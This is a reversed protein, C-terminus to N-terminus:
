RKREMLLDVVLIVLLTLLTSGVIRGALLSPSFFSFSEACFIVTCFVATLIVAYLVYRWMGLSAFSPVYKEEGRDRYQIRALLPNHLLAVTVSALAYVGPTNTFIDVLLGVFFAFTMFLHAQLGSPAKLFLYVLVFPTAVGWLAIRNCMLIQLVVVVVAGVMRWVRLKNM